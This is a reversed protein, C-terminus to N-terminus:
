LLCETYAFKRFQNVCVGRKYFKSREMTEKRGEQVQWREQIRGKQTRGKKRWRWDKEPDRLMFLTMM